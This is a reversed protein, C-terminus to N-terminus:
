CHAWFVWSPFSSIVSADMGACYLSKASTKESSAALRKGSMRLSSWGMSKLGVAGSVNEHLIYGIDALSVSNRLPHILSFRPFPKMLSDLDGYAEGVKKILFFFPSKRTM